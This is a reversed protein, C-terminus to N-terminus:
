NMNLLMIYYVKYNFKLSEDIIGVVNYNIEM